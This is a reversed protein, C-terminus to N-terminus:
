EWADMLMTLFTREMSPMPSVSEEQSLQERTPKGNHVTRGKVSEDQKETSCTLTMQAQRKKEPTMDKVRTPEFCARDHLQGTEKLVADEGRKGFMKLGKELTCQQAHQKHREKDNFSKNTKNGFEEKDEERTDISQQWSNTFNEETKFTENFDCTVDALTQAECMNCDLTEGNLSDINHNQQLM